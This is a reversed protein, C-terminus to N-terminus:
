KVNWFHKQSKTKLKTEDKFCYGFKSEKNGLSNQFNIILFLTLIEYKVKMFIEM